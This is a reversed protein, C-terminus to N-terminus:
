PKRPERRRAAARYARAALAGPTTLCGLPPESGSLSVNGSARAPNDTQFSLNASAQYGFPWVFQTSFTVTISGTQGPPITLSTPSATFGNSQGAPYTVQANTVHLDAAGNNTIVLDQTATSSPPITGFAMSTPTWTVSPLAGTGTMPVTDSAHSPDDTQFDLNATYSGTVAPAFTVQITQSGGPPVSLQASSATFVPPSATIGTVHLTVSGSNTVTVSLPSTAGAEVTGFDLSPPTWAAAPEGGTGTLTITATAQNPDNTQMTLTGTFAGAANPAFTVILVSTTGPPITLPSQSVTFVAPSSHIGTISLASNGTNAITVTQSATAGVKVAGFALSAPSASFVPAVTGMGLSAISAVPYTNATALPTPPTATLDFLKVASGLVAGCCGRTGKIVTCSGGGLQPDFTTVRPPTASFDILAVQPTTNSGALTHLGSLSVFDVSNLTSNATALLNLSTDYLRVWSATTDGTVIRQISEDADLSPPAPPNFTTVTPNAPNTFDATAIIFNGPDSAVVRSPGTFALQSIAPLANTGGTPDPVSVLPTPAYGLIVPNNPSSFDILCIRAKFTNIEEGVAVLAGRIAIAGIGSLVTQATGGPVPAAPNSVDFQQVQGGNLNGVFARAGDQNVQCGGQFAPTVAVPTGPNSFDIVSFKSGAGIPTAQSGATVVIPM